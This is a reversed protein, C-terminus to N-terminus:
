TSRKSLHHRLLYFAFAFPAAVLGIDFGVIGIRSVRKTPEIVRQRLPSDQVVASCFFGYSLALGAFAALFAQFGVVRDQGDPTFLFAGVMALCVSGILIPLEWARVRTYPSRFVLHAVSLTILATPFVEQLEPAQEQWMQYPLFLMAPVALAFFAKTCKLWWPTPLKTQEDM